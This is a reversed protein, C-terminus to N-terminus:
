SVFLPDLFHGLKERKTSLYRQNDSTLPSFLPLRESIKLAYREIGKVKLPNNTMLRIGRVDLARLIQAAMAYNRRDIPLGLHLNAEVTDLGSDQLHYADVKRSIGIGRGEQGRLYIVIGAEAEQIAQLSSKLQTGCDCRLSGFVDGTLCESHVRVMLDEKGAVDGKILALHECGDLKSQFTIVDFLGSETPLKAKSGITIHSETALRYEILEEISLLPINFKNAFEILQEDRAVSGDDNVVEALVGGEKLGALRSLDLAAETHGPRKLVGGDVARLPFIHGPRQFDSPKASPEVLAQITKARDSSSIGTTTGFQYDVSIGFATKIPDTNNAVMQGIDLEELREKSLPVCIIGSTYRIMFALKEPTAKEAALILDGENEREDDDIVIVFEGNRIAEIATQIRGKSM